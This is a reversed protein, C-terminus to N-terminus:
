SGFRDVTHVLSCRYPLMADQLIKGERKVNVLDRMTDTATDFHSNNKM